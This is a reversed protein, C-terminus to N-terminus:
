QLAGWLSLMIASLPDVSIDKVTSTDVTDVFTKFNGKINERLKINLGHAIMFDYELAQLRENLFKANSLFSLCLAQNTYPNKHTEVLNAVDCSSFLTTINENYYPLICWQPFTHIEYGVIDYYIDNEVRNNISTECIEEIFKKNKDCLTDIYKETDKIFDKLIKKRIKLNPIGYLINKGMLFMFFKGDVFSLYWALKQDFESLKDLNIGELLDPIKTFFPFEKNLLRYHKKQVLNTSDLIQGSLTFLKEFLYKKYHTTNTEIFRLREILEYLWESNMESLYHDTKQSFFINDSHVLYGLRDFSYEQNGRKIVKKDEGDLIIINHRILKEVEVTFIDYIERCGPYKIILFRVICLCFVDINLLNQVIKDDGYRVNLSNISIRIFNFLDTHIGNFSKIIAIINEYFRLEYFKYSMLKDKDIPKLKKFDIEMNRLSGFNLAENIIDM